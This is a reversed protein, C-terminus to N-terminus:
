EGPAYGRPMGALGRPARRAGIGALGMLGYSLVTWGVFGGTWIALILIWDVPGGADAISSSTIWWMFMVAAFGGMVGVAESAVLRRSVLGRDRVVALAFLAIGVAALALIGYLWGGLMEAFVAWFVAPDLDKM